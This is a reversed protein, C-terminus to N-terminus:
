SRPPPWPAHEQVWRTVLTLARVDDANYRRIEEVPLPEHFKLYCEYRFGVEFGDLGSKSFTYGCWEAVEKLGWGWSRTPLVLNKKFVKLLDVKPRSRWKRMGGKHWRKLGAEMAHDDFDRGSYSCLTYGPYSDLYHLFETYMGRRAKGDQNEAVWQEVQEGDSVGILWPEHPSPEFMDGIGLGTEVDYFLIKDPIPPWGLWVPAGEVVAHRLARLRATRVRGFNVTKLVEAPADFLQQSKTIGFSALKTARRPGIDPVYTVSLQLQPTPDLWQISPAKEPAIEIVAVNATEVHRDDSAANVVLTSGLHGHKGGRCHCHGCLVLQPRREVVFDRLTKSGVHDLGFRIAYDLRCGAPPTHSVVILRRYPVGLIEVARSLHQVLKKGDPQLVSGLRNREGRYIAGEIGVFGWGGIRAPSAHLDRVGSAGLFACHYPECDNGLVAAVGYRAFSAIKSLWNDKLPDRFFPCLESIMFPLVRPNDLPETGFREKLALMLEKLSVKREDLFEDSRFSSGNITLAEPPDPAPVFRSVDDGGYV